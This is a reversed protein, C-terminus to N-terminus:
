KIDIIKKTHQGKNTTIRLLYNSDPALSPVNLDNLGMCYSFTHFYFLSYPYIKRNQTEPSQIKTLKALSCVIKKSM